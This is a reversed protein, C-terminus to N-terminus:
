PESIVEVYDGQGVIRAMGERLHTQVRNDIGIHLYNFEPFDEESLDERIIVRESDKKIYLTCDQIETKQQRRKYLKCLKAPLILQHQTNIRRVLNIAIPINKKVIKELEM